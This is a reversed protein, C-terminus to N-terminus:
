QVDHGDFPVCTVVSSPICEELVCTEYTVELSATDEVLGCTECSEVQCATGEGLNHPVHLVSGHEPACPVYPGELSLIGEVLSCTGCSEEQFPNHEELVCTECTEEM